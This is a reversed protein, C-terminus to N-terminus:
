SLALTLRRGKTKKYAVITLVVVVPIILLLWTTALLWAGCLVATVLCIAGVTGVRKMIMPNSVGVVMIALSVLGIPLSLSLLWIAPKQLTATLKDAKSPAEKWYPEGVPKGLLTSQEAVYTKGNVKKKGMDPLPITSCSCILCLMFLYTYYKM